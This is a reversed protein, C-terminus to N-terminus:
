VNRKLDKRPGDRRQLLSTGKETTKPNPPFYNLGRSRGKRMKKKEKSSSMTLSRSSIKKQGPDPREGREGDTRM